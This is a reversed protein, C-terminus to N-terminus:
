AAPAHAVQVRHRTRECYRRLLRRAAERLFPCRATVTRCAAAPLHHRQGIDYWVTQLADEACWREAGHGTNVRVLADPKIGVQELLSWYGWSFLLWLARVAVVDNDLESQYRPHPVIATGIYRGGHPSWEWPVIAAEEGSEIRELLTCPQGDGGPWYYPYTLSWVPRDWGERALGDYGMRHEWAAVRRHWAVVAARNEVAYRHTMARARAAPGDQWAALGVELLPTRRFTWLELRDCLRRLAAPDNLSTTAAALKGALPQAWEDCLWTAEARDDTTYYDGTAQDEDEDDLHTVRL